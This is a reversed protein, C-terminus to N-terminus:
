WEAAKSSNVCNMIWCLKPNLIQHELKLIIIKVFNINDLVIEFLYISNIMQIWAAM